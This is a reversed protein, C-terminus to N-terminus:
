GLNLRQNLGAGDLAEGYAFPGDGFYNDFYDVNESLNNTFWDVGLNPAYSDAQTPSDLTTFQITDASDLLSLSELYRTALGNVVTGYSHGIFHLDEDYDEGIIDKLAGGLLM